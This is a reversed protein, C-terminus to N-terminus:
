EDHQPCPLTFLFTAGAGERSEVRITGGHAEVIGRVITLGLGAGARSSDRTRWFRDFVHALQEPAIGSGTDSVSVRVQEEEVDLSLIVTGGAPTFRLANGILNSFVQLVRDRDALVVVPSGQPLHARLSVSADAAIPAHLDLAERLLARADVPVANVRLKGAEILSVDLLDSILGRMRAASRAVVDLQRAEAERAPLKQASRLLAAASMSIVNLPSRLDHSVIALIEDRRRTSAEAAHLLQINSLALGVRHALDQSLLLDDRDYHRNSTTTGLTIAGLVRGRAVMPVVILSRLGTSGPPRIARLDDSSIGCDPGLHSVLLPSMNKVARGVPHGALERASIVANEDGIQAARRDVDVTAVMRLSGDEEVLDIRCFDALSPVTLQALNSLMPWGGTGLYEFGAELIESAYALLASRREAREAKARAVQELMLLREHTRGMGKQETVDTLICVWSPEASAGPTSPIPAAAVSLDVPTGDRRRRRVQRQAVANGRVLEAFLSLFDSWPGPISGLDHLGVIEDARWGFAREAAENWVLLDGRASVLAAPLPLALVAASDAPEPAARAPARLAAVRGVHCALQESAQLVCPHPRQPRDSLFVLVAATGGGSRVPVLLVGGVALDTISTGSAGTWEGWEADTRSLWRAGTSLGKSHRALSALLRRVRREASRDDRADGIYRPASAGPEFVIAHAGAWQGHTRVERLCVAVAQEFSPSAYLALTAAHLLQLAQMERPLPDSRVQMRDAAMLSSRM